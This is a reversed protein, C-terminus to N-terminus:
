KLNSKRNQVNDNQLHLAVAAAVTAAALCSTALFSAGESGASHNPERLVDGQLHLGLRRSGTQLLGRQGGYSGRGM